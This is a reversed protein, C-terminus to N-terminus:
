EIIIVASKGIDVWDYLFKAHSSYNRVCKHSRPVTGITYLYEKIGPDVREGEVIQFEVPVGHIYAGGNFRIAYPAYGAIERTEDDLYLFRDRTQIAMFYGLETEQKYKAKEGTTAFIYSILNWSGDRYEFVGQNQNRRDVVIAQTLEKISNYLTVYKRPIWYEGEFNLTRIKYFSKSEELITVLSGDSIYRFESDWKPEHYAPAAQYRRVGYKDITKGNYLPSIGNRNKYNSIYATKSNDVENKLRDISEEMKDFQFKRPEGLLGFVYGYEIDDGSKWFVKYWKNSNYRELHEGEVEEVLNLKEYVLAKKLVKSQTTPRQRININSGLVLFYDYSTHYRDYKIDLNITSPLETNFVNLVTYEEEEQEDKNESKEEKKEEVEEQPLLTDEETKGEEEAVDTLDKDEQLDEANIDEEIDGQSSGENDLVRDGDISNEGGNDPTSPNDVNVNEIQSCGSIIFIVIILLIGKKM